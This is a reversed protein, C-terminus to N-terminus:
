RAARELRLADRLHRNGQDRDKRDGESIEDKRRREETEERGRERSTRGTGKGWGWRGKNKRKEGGRDRKRGTERLERWPVRKAYHSGTNRERLAGLRDM